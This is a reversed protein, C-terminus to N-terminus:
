LEWGVLLGNGPATTSVATFWGTAATVFIGGNPNLRVGQRLTAPATSGSAGYGLYIVNGTTSVNQLVLQKRSSNAPVVLVSQYTPFLVSIAAM